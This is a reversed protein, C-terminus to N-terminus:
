YECDDEGGGRARAHGQTRHTRERVGRGRPDARLATLNRNTKEHSIDEQKIFKKAMPKSDNYCFKKIFANIQPVFPM